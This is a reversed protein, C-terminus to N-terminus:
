PPNTVCGPIGELKERFETVKQLSAFGAHPGICQIRTTHPDFGFRGLPIGRLHPQGRLDAPRMLHHFCLVCKVFCSPATEQVGVTPSSSTAVGEVVGLAVHVWGVM